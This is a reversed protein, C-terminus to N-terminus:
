LQHDIVVSQLRRDIDTIMLEWGDALQATMNQQLCVCIRRATILLMSFQDKLVHQVWGLDEEPSMTGLGAPQCPSDYFKVEGAASGNSQSTISSVLGDGRDIFSGDSGVGTARAEPNVAVADILNDITIMVTMLLNAWSDKSPCCPCRLLTDALNLVEQRRTIQAHVKIKTEVRSHIISDVLLGLVRHACDCELFSDKGQSNSLIKGPSQSACADSASPSLLGQFPQEPVHPLYPSSQDVNSTWLEMGPGPLNDDLKSGPIWPTHMREANQVRYLVDYALLQPTVCLDADLSSSYMSMSISEMSCTSARGSQPHFMTGVINSAYADPLNIAPKNLTIQAGPFDWPDRSDTSLRGQSPKADSQESKLGLLDKQCQVFFSVQGNQMLEKGAQQKERPKRKGKSQKERVQDTQRKCNKSERPKESASRASDVSESASCHGSTGHEARPSKNKAPRGLRRSVSYVCEIRHKECRRCAPREHGCRIKAQQCANCTSRVKVNTPLQSM